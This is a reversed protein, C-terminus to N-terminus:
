GAKGTQEGFMWAVVAKNRPDTYTMYHARSFILVEDESLRCKTADTHRRLVQVIGQDNTLKDIAHVIEHHFVERLYDPHCKANLAIKCESANAYGHWGWYDSLTGDIVIDFRTGCIWIERPLDSASILSPTEPVREVTASESNGCNLCKFCNGSRVTISKCVQCAPADSQHMIM